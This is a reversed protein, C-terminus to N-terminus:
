EVSRSQAPLPSKAEASDRLLTRTTFVGGDHSTNLPPTGYAHAEAFVVQRESVISDIHFVDGTVFQELLYNSQADGLQDLYPGCSM